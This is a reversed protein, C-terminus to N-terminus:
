EGDGKGCGDSGAAKQEARGEVKDRVDGKADSRGSRRGMVTWQMNANRTRREEERRCGYYLYGLGGRQNWAGNIM